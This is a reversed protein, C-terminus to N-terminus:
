EVIWAAHWGSFEGVLVQFDLSGLPEWPDRPTGSLSDSPCSGSILIGFACRSTESGLIIFPIESNELTGLPEQSGVPLDMADLLGGFVVVYM